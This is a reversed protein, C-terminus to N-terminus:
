NDGGENPIDEVRIVEQNMVEYLLREETIIDELSRHALPDVEEINLIKLETRRNQQHAVEECNAGNACNNVLTTEGYGKSQLKSADIGQSILYEVASKARRDSLDMNYNDKGRSDTHSGLEVTIGPNDKLVAVLKDLEIAADSRINDKDYDYYINEITYTKNLKLPELELNALFTGLSNGRTLVDVVNPRIDGIGEFCLICGEVNVFAEIRKNFYGKRRIMLTYHNGKEFNFKFNPHPYDKLVLEATNTTNNFIEIRASDIANVTAEGKRAEALTVDFIYGPKREMAIKAFLKEGEEIGKSSLSEEKPFFRKKEAVIKLSKGAPVEATFFGEKDTKTEALLKNSIEHLITIKVNKLFGSNDDSYVHGELTVEQATILSTSIMLLCPILIKITRM